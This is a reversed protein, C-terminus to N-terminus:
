LSAVTFQSVSYKLETTSLPSIDASKAVLIVTGIKLIFTVLCKTGILASYSNQRIYHLEKFSYYVLAKSFNDPLARILTPKHFITSSGVYNKSKTLHQLFM